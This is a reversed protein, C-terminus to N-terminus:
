RLFSSHYKWIMDADEKPTNGERYLNTNKAITQLTKLEKEFLESRTQISDFYPILGELNKSINFLEQSIEKESKGRVIHMTQPLDVCTDQTPIKIKGDCFSALIQKSKIYFISFNKVLGSETNLYALVQENDMKYELAEKVEPRIKIGEEDRSWITKKDM